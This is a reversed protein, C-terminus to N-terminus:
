QGSKHEFQHCSANHIILDTTTPKRYIKFKLQGNKNNITLDLLNISSKSERGMTLTIDPQLNNFEELVQDTHTMDSNYLILIDDM